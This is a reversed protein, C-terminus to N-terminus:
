READKLTPWGLSQILINTVTGPESQLHQHGIPCSQMSDIQHQRYPDWVVSAYLLPCVLAEYAQNRIYAPCQGLNRRIFGLIKNARSTAKSIHHDWKMRDSIEVGLYPYHEVTELQHDMMHYSHIIPKRKRTVM